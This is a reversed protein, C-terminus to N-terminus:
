LPTDEQAKKGSQCKSSARNGDQYGDQDQGAAYECVVGELDLQEYRDDVGQHM